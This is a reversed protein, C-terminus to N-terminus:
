APISEDRRPWMRVAMGALLLGFLTALLRQPLWLALAAGALAGPVGGLMMRGSEGVDVDGHRRHIASGILANPLIALLSTGQAVRQGIGFGLVLMPVLLVGGGVGTLGSITGVALGGVVILADAGLGLTVDGSGQLGGLLGDHLEKVAALVLLVAVLMKLSREPVNRSLRSGAASGASSGAMVLLAVKLDLQPARSGFYYICAGVIAIPVIAALSNGIARRQPTRTWIVQLPVMLFGGGVGLLGGALGAAGGIVVDPFRGRAQQLTM